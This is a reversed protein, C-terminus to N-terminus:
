LCEFNSCIRLISLRLKYLHCIYIDSTIFNFLINLPPQRRIRSFSVGQDERKYVLMGGYVGRREGNRERFIQKSSTRSPFSLSFANDSLNGTSFDLWTEVSRNQLVEGRVVGWSTIMLRTIAARIYIEWIECVIGGKFIRTTRDNRVCRNNM